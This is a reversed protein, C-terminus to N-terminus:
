EPRNGAAADLNQSATGGMGTATEDLCQLLTGNRSGDYLSELLELNKVTSQDLLMSQDLEYYHLSDLHLLEGRQTEQLYHLAGGAAAM